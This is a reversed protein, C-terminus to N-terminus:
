EEFRVLEWVEGLLYRLLGRTNTEPYYVVEVRDLEDPAQGIKNWIDAKQGFKGYLSNLLYKCLVQYSENGAAKFQQRLKYIRNIFRTFLPAQEYVVMSEVEIIDNHELAYKLEPTCLTVMFRGIPFVTRAQKVAYVPEITEVLVRAIVSHNRLAYRLDRLIPEHVIKKYKRPYQIDVMVAPYLSNVDLVYYDGDTLDGLFFCETRGGRYSARELDVAQQYNTGQQ